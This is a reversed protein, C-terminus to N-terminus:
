VKSALTLEGEEILTTRGTCQHWSDQCSAHIGSISAAACHVDNLALVTTHSSACTYSQANFAFM